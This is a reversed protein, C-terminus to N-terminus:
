LRAGVERVMERWPTLRLHSLHVCIPGIEIAADPLRNSMRIWDARDATLSRSRSETTRRDFRIRAPSRRLYSSAQSRNLTWDCGQAFCPHLRGLLRGCVMARLRAGVERVMERWPTLRLHSPHVCIQGIEIAADPLRNSMRIWDARDATLSQSGSRATTRREFRDDTPTLRLHSLHACIQGIEIATSPRFM